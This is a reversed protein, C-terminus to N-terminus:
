PSNPSLTLRVVFESGLGPGASNAIVTGNHMEVLRRVLALGLGLGGSAAGDVGRVQTFLDFVQPLMEAIIGVGNDRVRLLAEGDETAVELTILGGEPTYRAANTLLNAVVQVLRTGDGDIWIPEAPLTVVLSHKRGEIIARTTEVARVAIRALDTPERHLEIKGQRVRAVDLLDEVLRLM